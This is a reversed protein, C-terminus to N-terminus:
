APFSYCYVTIAGASTSLNITIPNDKHARLIEENPYACEPEFAVSRKACFSFNSIGIQIESNPASSVNLACDEPVGLVGNVSEVAFSEYYGGQGGEPSDPCESSAFEGYFGCSGANVYDFHGAGLSVSANQIQVTEGSLNKLYFTRGGVQWDLCDGTSQSEHMVFEIGGKVPFREDHTTCILECSLTSACDEDSCDFKNDCDNDQLDACSAEATEYLAGYSAANCGPWTESSCTQKAGSCVGSQLPCNKQENGSCAASGPCCNIKGLGNIGVTKSYGHQDIYNIAINGNIAGCAADIKAIRIERGAAVTVPPTAAGVVAGDITIPSSGAEFSGTGSVSNIKIEGGSMNQLLLAVSDEGACDSVANAKVVIKGGGASFNVKEGPASFSIFLVSAVSLIIIIAWGYTLLYELGAQARFANRM